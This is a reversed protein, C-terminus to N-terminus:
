FYRVASTVPLLLGWENLKRKKMSRGAIKRRREMALFDRRCKRAAGLAMSECLYLKKNHIEEYRDFVKGDLCPFAWTDEKVIEKEFESKTLNTKYINITHDDYYFIGFFYGLPKLEFTVNQM